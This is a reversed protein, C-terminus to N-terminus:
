PEPSWTFRIDPAHQENGLGDTHETAVFGHRAYFRQAPENVAFTWLQLGHPSRQKAIEVFRDGVGRGIWAPDVYLQEIWGPGRGASDLVMLGVITGDLDAVWVDAHGIVDDAMWRRVEQASHVLPLSPLGFEYSRLYV